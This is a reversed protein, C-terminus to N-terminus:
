CLSTFTTHMYKTFNKFRYWFRTRVHFRMSRPDFSQSNRFIHDTRYYTRATFNNLSNLFCCSSNNRNFFHIIDSTDLNSCRAPLRNIRSQGSDFTYHSNGFFPFNIGSFYFRNKSKTCKNLKHRSFVTQQM